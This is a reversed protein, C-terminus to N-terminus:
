RLQQLFFQGSTQDSVVIEKKEGIQMIQQTKAVELKINKSKMFAGDPYDNQEATTGEQLPRRRSGVVLREGETILM